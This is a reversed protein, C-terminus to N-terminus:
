QGSLLPTFLSGRRSDLSMSLAVTTRSISRATPEGDAMPATTSSNSNADCRLKGISHLGLQVVGTVWKYKSYFGDAVVYSMGGPLYM